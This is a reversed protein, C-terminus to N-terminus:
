RGPLIPGDGTEGGGHLGGGEASGDDVDGASVDGANEEPGSEDGGGSQTLEDGSSPCAAAEDVAPRELDILAPPTTIRTTGGYGTWAVRHGPREPDEVREVSLADDEKQNCHVCSDQGNDLSTPGGRSHPTVHDHHRISANCFPGRCSTDRWTLFRAMATPFARARSDMAVLEGTTPHTYLRRIVARIAPGDTEFPDRQAPGPEATVALLQARVAEAPVPGYGEIQAVDGIGPHFLARDTIIVGVDITVQAATGEPRLVADHLVDAMHAGHPWKRGAVVRREAELSLRKHVLRAETAPMYASITAMGHAGPTFTVHRQKRARRHRITEGEPDLGGIALAVAQKWRRTGAGDLDPLREGLLADVQARQDDDLVGTAEAAAYVSDAAAQGTVMAELLHPMSDVLRRASTMTRGAGSPSKRTMLSIDRRTKGDARSHLEELPPMASLEHGVSDQASRVHELRTADGVAVLTRAEFADLVARAEQVTRLLNVYTDRGRDGPEFMQEPDSAISGLLFSVDGFLEAVARPGGARLEALLVSPSTPGEAPEPPTPILMSGDEGFGPM